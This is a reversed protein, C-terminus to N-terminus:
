TDVVVLRNVLDNIRRRDQVYSEIRDVIRLAERGHEGHKATRSGVGFVVGFGVAGRYGSCVSQGLAGGVRGGSGWTGEGGFFVGSVVEGVRGGGIVVVGGGRAADVQVAPDGRAEEAAGAPRAHADRGRVDVARDERERGEM